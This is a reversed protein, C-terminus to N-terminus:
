PFTFYILVMPIQITALDCLGEAKTNPTDFTPITQPGTRDMPSMQSESIVRCKSSLPLM